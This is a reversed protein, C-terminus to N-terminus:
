SDVQNRIEVKECDAISILNQQEGCFTFLLSETAGIYFEDTFCGDLDIDPHVCYKPAEDTVAKLRDSLPKPLPINLNM